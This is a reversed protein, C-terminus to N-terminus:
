LGKRLSKLVDQKINLSQDFDGDLIEKVAKRKRRLIDMMVLEYTEDAILYYVSVPLTQGKRYVRDEAQEMKMPNYVMEAMLVDSAATLNIGEACATISGIFLRTDPSEQFSQRANQREQEGIGGYIGVSGPYRDLLTKVVKRHHAFVVLKKGTSMFNDIWDCVPKIKEEAIYNRLEALNGSTETDAIDCGEFCVCRKKYEKIDIPVFVSIRKKPPLEKMVESKMRRLMITKSLVEHLEKTNSAGLKGKRADCYRYIYNYWDFMGPRIINFINFLEHPANEVPTGSLGMAYKARKAISKAAKTRQSKANKIYHCEDFVVLDPNWHLISKKWKKLVDYNIVLIRCEQSIALSKGGQVVQVNEEKWIDWKTCEEKWNSKLTATCVVVTKPIDHMLLFSLVQLTKGLGMDDGLLIRGNRREMFRIGEKQYKCLIDKLHRPYEKRPLLQRGNKTLDKKKKQNPIEEPATELERTKKWYSDRLLVTSFNNARAVYSFSEIRVANEITPDCTWVTRTSDFQVGQLNRLQGSVSKFYDCRIRFKDKKAVYGAEYRLMAM